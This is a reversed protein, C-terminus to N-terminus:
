DIAVDVESAAHAKLADKITLRASECAEELEVHGESSAASQTKLLDTVTDRMRKVADRRVAPKRTTKDTAM